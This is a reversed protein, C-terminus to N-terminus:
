SKRPTPMPLEHDTGWSEMWRVVDEHPIGPAGSGAEELADKIRGVQWANLDVYAEIAETALYSKSRKTDRALAELKESTEPSLRVTMMASKAM